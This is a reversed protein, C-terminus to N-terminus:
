RSIVILGARDGAVAVIGLVVIFAGLRQCCQHKGQPSRGKQILPLLDTHGIEIEGVHFLYLIHFGDIDPIHALLQMQRM